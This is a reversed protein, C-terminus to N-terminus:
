NNNQDGRGTKRCWCSGRCTSRGRFTVAERAVGSGAPLSGPPQLQVNFRVCIQPNGAGGVVTVKRNM